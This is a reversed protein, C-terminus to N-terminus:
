EIRKVLVTRVSDIEVLYRTRTRRFPRTVIRRVSMCKAAARPPRVAVPLHKLSDAFVIRCTSGCDRALLHALHPYVEDVVIEVCGRAVLVVHREKRSDIGSVRKRVSRTDRHVSGVALGVKALVAASHKAALRHPPYMDSRHKVFAVTWLRLRQM